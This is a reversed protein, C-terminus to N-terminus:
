GKLLPQGSIHDIGLSDCLGRLYVGLPQVAMIISDLARQNDISGGQLRLVEIMQREAFILTNLQLTPLAKHIDKSNLIDRIKGATAGFLALHKTNHIKAYDPNNVVKSVMNNLEKVVQKAELEAKLHIINPHEGLGAKEHKSIESLMRSEAVSLMKEPNRRWDDLLSGAEALYQRVEAIMPRDKTNRLYQTIRYLSEDNTFERQYTKGDSALYDLHRSSIPMEKKLKTLVKRIDSEGTLGRIWDQVAFYTKGDSAPHYQLEFGWKEAVILPLPRIDSLSLDAFGLQKLSEDPNYNEM